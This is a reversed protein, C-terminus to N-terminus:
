PIVFMKFTGLIRGLVKEFTKLKKLFTGFPFQKFRQGKSRIKQGTKSLNQPGVWFKKLIKEYTIKFCIKIYRFVFISKEFHDRLDQLDKENFKEHFKMKGLFHILKKVPKQGNKVVKPAKQFHKSLSWLSIM